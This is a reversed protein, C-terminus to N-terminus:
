NRSKVEVWTDTIQQQTMVERIFYFQSPNEQFARLLRKADPHIAIHSLTHLTSPFYGYTSFHQKVSEERFLYRILQYALHEKQSTVPIAFSEITLFTGEQPLVFGISPFLSLSKWLYSSSVVALQCSNTALFYDGRFSAYVEVHQKQDILLQQLQSRQSSNLHLQRPGFLYFSAFCTAEVPDNTMAIKYQLPSAFLMNWSPPTNHTSFYKKNIAFLFAEWEFPISYQNNPDFPHNCLKPNIQKWFPLESKDIRKLLNEQILRELTYDSPLILDFGEGSTAKLKVLLEENSSYYSFVVKIGTEEEFQKVIDPLLIDSWVFVHLTKSDGPLIAAKPGYLITALLALWLIIISLRLVIRKM